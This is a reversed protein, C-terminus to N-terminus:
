DLLGSGAANPARRGNQPRLDRGARFVPRLPQFAGGAMDNQGPMFGRMGLCGPCRRTGWSADLSSGAGLTVLRDRSRASRRTGARGAPRDNADLTTKGM